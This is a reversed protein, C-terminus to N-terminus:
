SSDTLLHPERSAVSNNKLQFMRHKENSKSIKQSTWFGTRVMKSIRYRLEPAISILMMMFSQM